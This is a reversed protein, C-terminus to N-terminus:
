RGSQKRAHDDLQRRAAGFADRIAVYVDEHGHDKSHQRSVVVEKGPVNLDIRVHYLKGKHHHQDPAEIVVNCSDIRQHVQELKSIKELVKAEIFESPDMNRFTIQPAVNM